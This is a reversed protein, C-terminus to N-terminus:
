SGLSASKKLQNKLITSIFTGKKRDISATVLRMPCTPPIGYQFKLQPLGFCYDAPNSFDIIWKGGLNKRFTEGIYMVVGNFIESEEHKKVDNISAYRSLIWEEIFNLSGVSYDLKESLSPPINKFFSELADDM